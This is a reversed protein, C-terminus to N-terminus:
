PMFGGVHSLIIRIGPYRRVFGNRVLRYAARTTDLLFDAAFPPVGAVAPGVLHSPHVFLVARRKELEAFLPAHAEDGLYTGHTNALLVVGPRSSRLRRGPAFIILRSSEGESQAGHRKVRGGGSDSIQVSDPERQM